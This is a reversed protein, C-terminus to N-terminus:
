DKNVQVLEKLQVVQKKLQNIETKMMEIMIQMKKIQMNENDVNQKPAAKYKKVDLIDTKGFINVDNGTHTGYYYLIDDPTQLIYRQVQKSTSVFRMPTSWTAGDNFSTLYRVFDGSKWMIMLQQQNRVLIPQKAYIDEFVAKERYMISNKQKWVVGDDCVYPSAGNEYLTVFRDPKSDSFDQYGLVGYENTYYVKGDFLFYEDDQLKDITVPLANVGLVCHVLIISEEYQASYFLQLQGHVQTISFTLPQVEERCQTLVCKHWAGNKFLLYVIEREDNTCIIHISGGGDQHVSFKDAGDKYIVETSKWTGSSKIRRCIGKNPMYLFHYLEDNLVSLYNTM